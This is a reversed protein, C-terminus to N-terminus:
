SMTFTISSTAFTLTDGAGLTKTGGSLAQYWLRVPTGTSDWVEVAAVNGAPLGAYTVASGSNTISGSGSTGMATSVTVGGAPYSGGTVETGTAGASGAVSYLRMKIPTTLTFATGKTLLDLLKNATTTELAPM